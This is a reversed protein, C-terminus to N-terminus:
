PAVLQTPSFYAEGRRHTHRQKFITQRDLMQDPAEIKRRAYRRRM